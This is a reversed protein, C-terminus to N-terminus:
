AAYKTLPVDPLNFLFVAASASTDVICMSLHEPLTEPDAVVSTEPRPLRFSLDPDHISYIGSISDYHPKGPDSSAGSSCGAVISLMGILTIAPLLRM